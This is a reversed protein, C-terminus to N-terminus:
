SVIIYKSSQKLFSGSFQCFNVSTFQAISVHLALVKKEVYKEANYKLEFKEVEECKEVQDVNKIFM